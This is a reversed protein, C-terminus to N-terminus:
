FYVPHVNNLANIREAISKIQDDIEGELKKARELLKNLKKINNELNDINIGNLVISAGNCVAGAACVFQLFGPGSFAGLFGLCTKIISGIVNNKEKEKAFENEELCKNINRILKDVEDKDAKIKKICEDLVNNLSIVDRKTKSNLQEEIYQKDEEFKKEIAQIINEFGEIKKMNNKIEKYTNYSSYLQYISMIGYSIRSFTSNSSFQYLQFGLGALNTLKEFSHKLYIYVNELVFGVIKHKSCFELIEVKFKDIDEDSLNLAKKAAIFIYNNVFNSYIENGRELFYNSVSYLTGLFEKIQAPLNKIAEKFTYIFTKNTGNCIMQFEKKVSKPWSQYDIDNSILFNEIEKESKFKLSEISIYKLWLEKIYPYKDPQKYWNINLFYFNNFKDLIYNFEFKNQNFYEYNKDGYFMKKFCESDMKEIDPLFNRYILLDEELLFNTLNRASMEDFNDCSKSCNALNKKLNSTFNSSTNYTEQDNTSYNNNPIPYGTNYNKYPESYDISNGVKPKSYYNSYHSDIKSSKLSDNGNRRRYSM